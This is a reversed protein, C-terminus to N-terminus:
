AEDDIADGPTWILKESSPPAMVTSKQMLNPQPAVVASQLLEALRKKQNRTMWFWDPRQEIPIPNRKMEAAAFKEEDIKFKKCHNRKKSLNVTPKRPKV